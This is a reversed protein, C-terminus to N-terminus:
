NKSKIFDIEVRKSSKTKPIPITEQELSESDFRKDISSV